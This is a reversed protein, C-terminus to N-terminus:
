FSRAQGLMQSRRILSAPIGKINQELTKNSKNSIKPAINHQLSEYICCFVRVNVYCLKKINELLM